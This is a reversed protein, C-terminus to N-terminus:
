DLEFDTEARDDRGQWAHAMGHWGSMVELLGICEIGSCWEVCTCLDSGGLM